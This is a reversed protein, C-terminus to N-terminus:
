QQQKKDGYDDQGEKGFDSGKDQGQDPKGGQQDQQKDFDQKGGDDQGPKGMDQGKDYDGM